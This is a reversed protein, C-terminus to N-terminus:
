VSVEEADPTAPSPEQDGTWLEFLHFVMTGNAYQFTGLHALRGWEEIEIPHGTGILRFTRRVKPAEPYVLAWMVPKGQQVQVDLIQAAEPMEIEFRDDLHVPYKYIRYPKM